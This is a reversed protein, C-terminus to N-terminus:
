ETPAVKRDGQYIAHTLFRLVIMYDYKGEPDTEINMEDCLGILVGLDEKMFGNWGLIYRCRLKVQIETKGRVIDIDIEYREAFKKVFKLTDNLVKEREPLPRYNLTKYLAEVFQKAEAPTEDQRATDPPVEPTEYRKLYTEM